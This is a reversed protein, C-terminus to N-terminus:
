RGRTERRFREVAVNHWEPNIEYGHFNMGHKYCALISSGSGTFPDLFNDGKKGALLIGLEVLEVPFRHPHPKQSRNQITAYGIRWVNGRCHLDVDSYRGVNSKDEYPVGIALRDLEYDQGNAFQFIFEFRNNLRKNGSCPSYQPKEWIITDVFTFHKNLILAARLPVDKYGALQGFNLFIMGNKKMVRVLDDALSYMLQYSFMDEFKYPPSTFVLDISNDSIEKMGRFDKNYFNRLFSTTM